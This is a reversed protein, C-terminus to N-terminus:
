SVVLVGIRNREMAAFADDMQNQASVNFIQFPTGNAAAAEQV